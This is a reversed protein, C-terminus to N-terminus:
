RPKMYNESTILINRELKHQAKCNSAQGPSTGELDLTKMKAYQFARGVAEAQFM